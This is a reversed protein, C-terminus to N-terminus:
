NTGNGYLEIQKLKSLIVELTDTVFVEVENTKVNDVSLVIRVTLLSDEFLEWLKNEREYMSLHYCNTYAYKKNTCYNDLLVFQRIVMLIQRTNM